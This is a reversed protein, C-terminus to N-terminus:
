VNQFSLPCHYRIYRRLQGSHCAGNCLHKFVVTEYYEEVTLINFTAFCKHFRWSLVKVFNRQSKSNFQGLFARKNINSSKRTKIFVNVASWLYERQQIQFRFTSYWICNELFNFVNESSKQRNELDEDFKSCKPFFSSM